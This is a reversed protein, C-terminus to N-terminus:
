KLQVYITLLNTQVSIVSHDAVSEYPAIEENTKLLSSIKEVWQSIEDISCKEVIDPLSHISDSALVPTGCALSELAVMPQGEWKSPLILLSSQQLLEVKKEQELWGHAVVNQLDEPSEEVGTCHLVIDSNIQQLQRMIEFAFEHGKVEDNRGLLLLQNPVREVTDSICHIPDIPNLSVKCRGLLPTLLEKWRDSLCIITANCEELRARLKKARNGKGLWQIINGSHIHFVIKGGLSFAFEALRLKRHFSFDSASHLHVVVDNKSELLVKLENKASAYVKLKSYLSGTSHSEIQQLEWGKPPHDTLTKIVSQIGGPSSIPGVHVVTPMYQTFPEGSM